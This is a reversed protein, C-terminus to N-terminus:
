SKYKIISNQNKLSFMFHVPETEPEVGPFLGTRSGILELSLPTHMQRWTSPEIRSM